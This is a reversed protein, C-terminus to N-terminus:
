DKVEEYIKEAGEFYQIPIGLVINRNRKTPNPPTLHFTIEEQELKACLIVFYPDIRDTFKELVTYDM